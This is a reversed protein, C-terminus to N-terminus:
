TNPHVAAPSISHGLFSSDTAGLRAKSPPLTLKHKSQREFLTRVTKVNGTPDPDFVVIDDLYTAM